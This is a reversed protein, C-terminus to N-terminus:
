LTILSLFWRLTNNSVLFCCLSLKCASILVCMSGWCYKEVVIVTHTHWVQFLNKKTHSNELWKKLLIFMLWVQISELWYHWFRQLYDTRIVDASFRQWCTKRLVLVHSLSSSTLPPTVVRYEGSSLLCVVSLLALEKEDLNMNHLDSSFKFITQALPGFGGREMEAQGVSVGNSFTLTNDSRRYRM